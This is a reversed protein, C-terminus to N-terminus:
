FNRDEKQVDWFDLRYKYELNCGDVRYRLFEQYDMFLFMIKEVYKSLM